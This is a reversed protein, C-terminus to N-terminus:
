RSDANKGVTLFVFLCRVPLAIPRMFLHERWVGGPLGVLVHLLIEIVKGGRRVPIEPMKVACM